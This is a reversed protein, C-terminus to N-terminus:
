YDVNNNNNNDLNKPLKYSWKILVIIRVKIIFLGNM